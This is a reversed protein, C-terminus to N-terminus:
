AGERFRQEVGRAWNSLNSGAEVTAAPRWTAEEAQWSFIGWTGGFPPQQSAPEQYSAPVQENFRIGVPVYIGYPPTGPYEARACFAIDTSARNWGAPLSYDSVRFWGDEVYEVASFHKRLLDLEKTLRERM